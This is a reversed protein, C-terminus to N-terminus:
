LIVEYPCRKPHFSKILGLDYALGHIEQEICHLIFSAHGEASSSFTMKENNEKTKEQPIELNDEWTKQATALAQLIRRMQNQTSTESRLKTTTMDYFFTNTLSIIQNIRLIEQEYAAWYSASMRIEVRADKIRDHVLAILRHLEVQTAIEDARIEEPPLTSHLLEDWPKTMRSLIESQIKLLEDKAYQPYFFRITLASTIIGFIVNMVRLIAAGIDNHNLLIITLTVGGILAIYSRDTNMFFYAYIFIPPIYALMNIVVDNYCCYIITLGYIASFFTGLFRYWCKLWVGGVFTYNYMTFWITILGWEREPIQCYWTILYLLLNAIVLRASRINYNM